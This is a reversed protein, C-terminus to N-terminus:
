QPLPVTIFRPRYIDVGGPGFNEAFDFTNVHYSILLQGPQSLHPHAKAGYVFIHPTLSIEPCDWIPIDKGWPGVPSSGYRVAVTSGLLDTMHVLLFRGDALPSVSFEASVASTLSAAHHIDPDWAAGNWFRYAGFDAIWAPLVRAVVLSKVYTGNRAGYVYLYGDPFPAGATSTLPMLALGFYTQRETDSAPVFLPADRQVYRGLFPAPDTAPAALLSSGATAFSFPPTDATQVRMGFM